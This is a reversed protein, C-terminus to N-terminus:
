AVIDREYIRYTKYKSAQMIQTLAKNMAENSELIWSAEGTDCGLKHAADATEAYMLTDIGKNRFEPLLGLVFIRVSSIRKKKTVLHWLAGLLSGKTNHILAENINPLTIAFGVPRGKHEAILVLSPEAVQKLDNVLFDFEDDTIKVFGWNKEWAANFITKLIATDRKFNAKNKFDMARITVGTRDRLLAVMRKMKESQYTANHLIYAFLDMVKHMGYNELLTKYYPPNYTMLVQPPSDYGEILLAAEDNMSPNVPGRIQAMGREKLWAGAADLLGNAVAQDNVCEFFGFFGVKDDHEVNHNDNIIAAIRGVIENNSEALFLQITSHKYFPNKETDLLKKRDAIIPPVFNPDGKYFNWQSKIFTLKDSASKVPRITFKM